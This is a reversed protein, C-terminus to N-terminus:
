RETTMYYSNPDSRTSDNCSGGGWAGQVFFLFPLKTMEEKEELIVQLPTKFPEQNIWTLERTIYPAM